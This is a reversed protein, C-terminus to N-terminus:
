KFVSKLLRTAYAALNRKKRHPDKKMELIDRVVRVVRDHEEPDRYRKRWMGGNKEMEVPGFADGCMGM